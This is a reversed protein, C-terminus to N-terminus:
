LLARLLPRSQAGPQSPYRIQNSIGAADLKRALPKFAEPRDKEGNILLLGFGRKKLLDASQDVAAELDPGAGGGWSAAAAFLEPHLLSLRVAGAGGMSFGAIARSEPSNLTPYDQDIRPILEDIIMTEVPGRYGSAGGNPFVVLVPAIEGKEIGKAVLGSFGAADASETGGIGHLFYIVPYRKTADYGPPTWAVYGVEHGLAKSTLVHHTLGPGQPLKPNVWSVPPRAPRSTPRSAPATTTPAPPTQASLTAALSLLSAALATAPIRSTLPNM